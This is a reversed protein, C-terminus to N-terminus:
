GQAVNGLEVFSPADKSPFRETVKEVAVPHCSDWLILAREVDKIVEETSAWPRKRILVLGEQSQM